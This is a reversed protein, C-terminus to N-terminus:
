IHRKARKRSKGCQAGGVAPTRHLERLKPMNGILEITMTPPECPNCWSEVKNVAWGKPMPIEVGVVEVVDFM